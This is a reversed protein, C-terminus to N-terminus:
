RKRLLRHGALRWGEEQLLMNWDNRRGIGPVGLLDAKDEQATLKAFKQYLPHEPSLLKEKRHLIPPNASDRFDSVRIDFKRLDVRLSAQLAPHPDREFEPYLLYSVKRQLRYLKIVDASVSGALVGGCGAYVRLLPPLTPIASAHFYVADPLIKGAPLDSIARALEEDSGLSFLLKDSEASAARHSGFLQKIDRQLDSPLATMRPRGGFASLALFVLLNDRARAAESSWDYRATARCLVQFARRVSGFASILAEGDPLESADPLRGREGLFVALQELLDEHQEYLVRSVLGRATGSQRVQRARLSEAERPDRFVYFIGPAAAHATTQLTSEIWTKLENQAYFKQFTGRATQVGDNLPRSSLRNAEWDLRAAIVLVWQTLDWAKRLTEARESVSEIVNIVYGLNVVDAPTLPEGPAFAPDWGSVSYGLQQLRGVDGGRGCGYDFVSRTTVILGDQM